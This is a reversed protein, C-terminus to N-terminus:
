EEDEVGADAETETEPMDASTTDADTETEQETQVGADGQPKAKEIQEQNVPASTTAKPPAEGGCSAIAFAMGFSCIIALIKKYMIDSVKRGMLTIHMKKDIPPYPM